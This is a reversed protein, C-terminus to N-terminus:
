VGHERFGVEEREGSELVEHEAFALAGEDVHLLRPSLVPERSFAPHEVFTHVGTCAFTPGVQPDRAAKWKPARPQAKGTPGVHDLEM